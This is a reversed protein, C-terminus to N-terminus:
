FRFACLQTALMKWREREGDNKRCSWTEMTLKEVSNEIKWVMRAVFIRLRRSNKVEESM